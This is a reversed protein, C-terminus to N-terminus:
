IVGAFTYGDDTLHEWPEGKWDCDECDKQENAKNIWVRGGCKPCESM